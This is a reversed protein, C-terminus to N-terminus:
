GGPFVWAWSLKPLPIIMTPDGPGLRGLRLDHELDLVLIVSAAAEGAAIELTMM